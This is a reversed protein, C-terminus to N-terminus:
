LEYNRSVVRDPEIEAKTPNKVASSCGSLILLLLLYKKMHPRRNLRIKRKEM